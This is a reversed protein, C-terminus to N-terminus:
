ISSKGSLIIVLIDWSFNIAAKDSVKCSGTWIDTIWQPAWMPCSLAELLCYNASLAAFAATSVNCDKFKSVGSKIRHSVKAWKWFYTEHFFITLHM